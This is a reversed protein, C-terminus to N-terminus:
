LFCKHNPLFKVVLIERDFKGFKGWCNNWLVGTFVKSFAVIFM